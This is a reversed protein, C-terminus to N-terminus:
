YRLLKGETLPIRKSDKDQITKIVKVAVPNGKLHTKFVKGFGGQGLQVASELLLADQPITFDWEEKIEHDLIFVACKVELLFSIRIRLLFCHKMETDVSCGWARFIITGRLGMTKVNEQLQILNEHIEDLYRVVEAFRGNEVDEKTTALTEFIKAFDDDFEGAM